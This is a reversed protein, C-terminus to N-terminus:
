VSDWLSLTVTWKKQKEIKRPGLNPHRWNRIGKPNNMTILPGPWM